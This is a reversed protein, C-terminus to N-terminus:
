EELNENESLVSQSGCLIPAPTNMTKDEADQAVTEKPDGPKKDPKRICVMQEQNEKFTAEVSRGTKRRKAFMEEVNLNLGPSDMIKDLAATSGSEEKEPYDPM